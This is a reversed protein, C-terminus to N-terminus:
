SFIYNNFIYSIVQSKNIFFQKKWQAYFEFFQKYFFSKTLEYIKKEGTKATEQKLFCFFLFFLNLYKM